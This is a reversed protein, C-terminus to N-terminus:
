IKELVFYVSDEIVGNNNVVIENEINVDELLVDDFPNEITLIFYKDEGRVL